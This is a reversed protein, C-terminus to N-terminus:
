PRRDGQTPGRQAYLEPRLDAFVDNETGSWRKDRARCLDCDAMLCMPRDGAPGALLDGDPDAIVSRGVWQIGRETGWRDCVAVFVRNVHATARAISVGINDHSRAADTNPSNTPVVIIDAGALAVGRTFEPVFLDYCIMLGIRGISTDLVPAPADGRDFILAERNWLHAKRYVALVGTGDVIAASNYVTGDDGQEAFGGVVVAHTGAEEAWDDLVGGHALQAAARAERRSEFAYGTNCLEPLVILRAGAAVAERVAARLLDCSRNADGMIPRVQCCAVRVARAPCNIESM